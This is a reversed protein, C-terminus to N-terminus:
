GINLPDYNNITNSAPVHFSVRIRLMIITAHSDMQGNYIDTMRTMLVTIFFALPVCKRLKVENIASKVGSWEM